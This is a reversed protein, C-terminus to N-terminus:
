FMINIIIFAVLWDMFKHKLFATEAAVRRSGVVVLGGRGHPLAGVAIEEGWEPLSVIRSKIRDCFVWNQDKVSKITYLPDQIKCVLAM